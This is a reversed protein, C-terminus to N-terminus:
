ITKIQKLVLSSSKLIAIYYNPIATLVVKVLLIRGALSLWRVKWASIKSRFHEIIAMWYCTKNAGVSFPLRLYTSPLQERPFGLINVIRCAVGEEVNLLYIKSKQPNIRQGSVDM